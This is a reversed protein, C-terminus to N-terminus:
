NGESEPLDYFRATRGDFGVRITGEAGFNKKPFSFEMVDDQSRDGFRRKYRGPRFMFGLEKCRQGAAYCWALDGAGFPRFGEVYVQGPNRRAMAEQARLGREEVSQKVQSFAVVAAREDQAWKNADWCFRAITRELTDGDEPFGQLYDVLVLDSDSDRIIDLAEDATLLGTHFDINDAWDEADDLATELKVLDRDDIELSQLRANNIDTETSFTRDATREAPDEMDIVTVQHGAKAAATALHLKWLSKGEGTAAGYITLVGRKTGARRDFERIGTPIIAQPDEGRKIAERQSRIEAARDRLVESYKM